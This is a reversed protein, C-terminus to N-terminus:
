VAEAEVKCLVEGARILRGGGDIFAPWLYCAIEDKPATQGNPPPRSCM